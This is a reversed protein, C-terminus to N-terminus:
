EDFEIVHEEKGQRWNGQGDGVAWTSRIRITHKPTRQPQQDGAVPPAQPRPAPPQARQTVTQIATKAADQALRSQLLKWGARLAFGAVSIAVPLIAKGVAVPLQQRQATVQGSTTDQGCAPCHQANMPTDGGCNPCIRHVESM